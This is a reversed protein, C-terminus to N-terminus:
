LFHQGLMRTDRRLGGLCTIIEDWKVLIDKRIAKSGIYCVVLSVFLQHLRIYMFGDCKRVRLLLQSSEFCESTLEDLLLKTKRLVTSTIVESLWQM